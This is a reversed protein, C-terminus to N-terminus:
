IKDIENLLETLPTSKSIRVQSLLLTLERLLLDLQEVDAVNVKTLASRISVREKDTLKSKLDEITVQKSYALNKLIVIGRSDESWISWEPHTSDLDHFAEEMDSYCLYHGLESKNGEDPCFYVTHRKRTGM